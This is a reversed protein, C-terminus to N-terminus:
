FQESFCLYEQQSGGVEILIPGTRYFLTLSGQFRVM